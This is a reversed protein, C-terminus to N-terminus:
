QPRTRPPSHKSSETPRQRRPLRRTREQKQWARTLHPGIVLMTEPELCAFATPTGGAALVTDRLAMAWTAELLLLLTTTDPELCHSFNEIAELDLGIERSSQLELSATSPGEVNDDDFLQRLTSGIPESCAKLGISDTEFRLAGHEDTSVFLVDLVEIVGHMRLMRLHAVVSAPLPGLLDFSFAVLQVTGVRAM